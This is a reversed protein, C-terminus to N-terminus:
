AEQVRIPWFAVVALAGFAAAIGMVLSLQGLAFLPLAILSAVIRGLSHTAVVFGSMTARAQPVIESAVALSAVLAFEFTLFVLFLATMM